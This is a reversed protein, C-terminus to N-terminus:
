ARLGARDRRHASLACRDLGQLGTRASLGTRRGDLRIGAEPDGAEAPIGYNFDYLRVGLGFNGREGIYGYGVAGNSARSDTGELTTAGGTRLPGMDRYGGRVSLASRGGLPATFGANVAAGPTVSEGQSGVSGEVHTPVSTPIDNSIVNVVGGLANNGYLLSAPGRVVEIRQAALPDVSVGHDAAASASIAPASM